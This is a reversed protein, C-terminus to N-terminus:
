ILFWKGNDDKMSSCSVTILRRQQNEDLDAEMASAGITVVIDVMEFAVKTRVAVANSEENLPDFPSSWFM